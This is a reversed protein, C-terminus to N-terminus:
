HCTIILPMPALTILGRNSLFMQCHLIEASSIDECRVKGVQNPSCSENRIKLPHCKSIRFQGTWLWPEDHPKLFHNGTSRTPIQQTDVRELLPELTPIMAPISDTGQHLSQIQCIIRDAKITIIGQLSVHIIKRGGYNWSSEKKGANVQHQERPDM